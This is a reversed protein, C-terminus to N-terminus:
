RDRRYDSATLVFRREATAPDFATPTTIRTRILMLADRVPERLEEAKPTLLMTRGSPVLLDDGFYERLRNLSGSIAPQSLNLRRAVASVSKEQILEDLVVLLNLDLREFRMKGEWYAVCMLM